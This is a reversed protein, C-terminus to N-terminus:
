NTSNICELHLIPYPHGADDRPSRAVVKCGQRMYFNVAEVNQENVDLKNAGMECVAHWFLRKGLGKGFHKPLTFLMEIKDGSVGVFSSIRGDDDKMYVVTCSPFMKEQIMQRYLEIDGPALFTHTQRVSAEWLETLEDYEKETATYYAGSSHGPVDLM